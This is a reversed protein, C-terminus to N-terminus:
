KSLTTHCKNTGGNASVWRCRGCIPNPLPSMTTINNLKDLIEEEMEEFNNSKSSLAIAHELISVTYPRSLAISFLSLAFFGISMDLQFRNLFHWRYHSHSTWIYWSDNLMEIPLAVILLCGKCCLGISIRSHCFDIIHEWRRAIGM